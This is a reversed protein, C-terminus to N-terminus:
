QEEVAVITARVCMLTISYMLVNDKQRYFAACTQKKHVFTNKSNPFNTYIALIDFLKKRILTPWGSSPIYTNGHRRELLPKYLIIVM